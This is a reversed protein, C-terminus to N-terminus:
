VVSKRDPLSSRPPLSSTVSAERGEPTTQERKRRQRTEPVPALREGRHDPQPDDPLRHRLRFGHDGPIGPLIAGGIRTAPHNGGRLDGHATARAVLTSDPLYPCRLTRDPSRLRLQAQRRGPSRRLNRRLDGSTHQAWPGRCHYLRHLRRGYRGAGGSLTRRRLWDGDRTDEATALRAGEIGGQVELHYGRLPLLQLGDWRPLLFGRLASSHQHNHEPTDAEAPASQQDGAAAPLVRGDRVDLAGLPHRPHRRPRGGRRHRVADRDRVSYRVM